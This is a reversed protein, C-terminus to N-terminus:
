WNGIDDGKENELVTDDAENPGLSYIDAGELNHRYSGPEKGKNVKYVYPNRWPDLLFKQVDPDRLEQRTAKRFSGTALDVVAMDDEKLQLYPANRGGPGKPKRVGCLASLLLPFDNRGTDSEMEMGPYAGEDQLYHDLSQGLLAVQTTALSIKTHKQANQIGVLCLSALLSIIGVVIL